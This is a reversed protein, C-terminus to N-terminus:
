NLRTVADALEEPPGSASGQFLRGLQLGLTLLLARLERTLAERIEASHPLFVIGVDHRGDSRALSRVVRGTVEVRGSAEKLPLWLRVESNPEIPRASALGIGGISFSLAYESTITGQAELDILFCCPV